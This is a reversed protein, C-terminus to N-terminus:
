FNWNMSWKTSQELAFQGGTGLFFLERSERLNPAIMRLTCTKIMQKEEVTLKEPLKQRDKSQPVGYNNEVYEKYIKCVSSYPIRFTKAVLRCNAVESDIIEFIRRRIEISHKNYPM